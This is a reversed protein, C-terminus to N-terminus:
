STQRIDTIDQLTEDAQYHRLMAAEPSNHSGDFIALLNILATVKISFDDAQSVPGLINFIVCIDYM